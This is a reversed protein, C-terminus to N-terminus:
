LRSPPLLRVFGKPLRSQFYGEIREQHKNYKLGIYIILIGILSLAVPFLMSDEFVRSSLHYLYGYVGLSGFVLFVKRKFLVSIIVLLINICLYFFKNLESDSSMLSLGGWFCLLGFLYLWFAYDKRTRRDMFYTSLLMILGFILSVIKRQEWSFTSIGFVIPTVDMSLFWLTFALPFTLFPFRYRIIFLISTIITGIEMLFWGSKIWTYYDKYDGPNEFVWLGSYHQVSFIFLPVMFVAVTLLLGGPINTSQNAYLKKGAFLFGGFYLISIAMLGLSSFNAFAETAFWTMASIVILAGFYYTVQLGTFAPRSRSEFRLSKWLSDAQDSNIIGSEAAHLLDDKSIRIKM